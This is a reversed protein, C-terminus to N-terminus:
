GRLSRGACLACGASVVGLVTALLLPWLRNTNVALLVNLVAATFYLVALTLWGTAPHLLVSRATRHPRRRLM